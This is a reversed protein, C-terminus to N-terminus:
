FNLLFKEKLNQWSYICKPPLRSYWNTRAGELSIIMSKTLMAENGGALAIAAEYYM